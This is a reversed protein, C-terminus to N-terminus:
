IDGTILLRPAHYDERRSNGNAIAEYHDMMARIAVMKDHSIDHEDIYQNVAAIREDITPIAANNTSDYTAEQEMNPKASKLSDALETNCPLSRIPMPDFHTNRESDASSDPRTAFCGLNKLLTDGYRVQSLARKQEAPSLPQMDSVLNEVGDRFLDLDNNMKHKNANSEGIIRRAERREDPTWITRARQRHMALISRHRPRTKWGHVIKVMTEYRMVDIEKDSKRIREAFNVFTDWDYKYRFTQDKGYLEDEPRLLILYFAAFRDAKQKWSKLGAKDEQDPKPGPHGPPNTMFKLTCQKSRLIQMHSHSIKLKGDFKFSTNKPRKQIQEPDLVKLQPKRVTVCCFYELRSLDKLEEGRYRYQKAYPIIEYFEVKGTDDQRM